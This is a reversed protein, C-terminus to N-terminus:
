MYYIFKQNYKKYIWMGISLSLFAYLFLVLHVNISPVLGHLVVLRFYHIHAFVPNLMFLRQTQLSFDDIPYFIASMFMMLRLFIDYLYHIDKFFVYLASLILGTGINFLMLTFIPYILLLFRPGMPLQDLWVFIFFICLTLLFNIGTAINRSFLFLYKPVKVKTMINANGLLSEMGGSTSESFFAFVLMGCFVYIVFNPTNNGFFQTFIVVMVLLHMLPSLMSWVMGLVTRKYKRKFDRKVLETFLFNYQKWRAHIQEIIHM